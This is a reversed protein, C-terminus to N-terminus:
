AHKKVVPTKKVPRKVPTTVPVPAPATSVYASLGFTATVASTAADASAVQVSRLVLKEGTKDLAAAVARVKPYAGSVQVSYPLETVSEFVMPRQPRFATVKLSRLRAEETVQALVKATVSEPDGTWLRPRNVKVAEGARLSADAIEQLVRRRSLERGKVIGASSPAPVFLVYILTGVLVVASLLMLVNPALDNRDKFNMM